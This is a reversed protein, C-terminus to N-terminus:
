VRPDRGLYAVLLDGPDTADPVPVPRAFLTGRADAPVLRPAHRLLRLALGAPVPRRAGTARGLDWGHVTLEMAALVGLDDHGAFRDGIRVARVDMRQGALRRIGDRVAAVPDAAVAAPPGAVADRLGELNVNGCTLGESLAAVSEDLHALLVGLDWGACPTPRDFMDREVDALACLAYAAGRAPLASADARRRRAADASRGQGGSARM